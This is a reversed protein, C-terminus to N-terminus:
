PTKGSATAEPERPLPVVLAQEGDIRFAFRDADFLLRFYAFPENAPTYSAGEVAVLRAGEDLCLLAREEDRPTVVSLVQEDRADTLGYREELTEYLSAPGAVDAERLLPALGVPVLARDILSPGDGAARLRVIEWCPVGDAVHLFAAARPPCAIRAFHIVRSSLEVQGDGIGARLPGPQAVRSLVRAQAVFTGRGQQRSLLGRAVLDGIARRVTIMSVGALRALESETPLRDGPRLGEEDILRLILDMTRRYKTV